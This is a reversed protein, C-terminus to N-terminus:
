LKGVKRLYVVLNVAWLAVTLGFIAGWAFAGYEKPEIRAFDLAPGAALVLWAFFQFLPGVPVYRMM